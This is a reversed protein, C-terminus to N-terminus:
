PRGTGDLGGKYIFIVSSAASGSWATPHIHFQTGAAPAGYSVYNSATSAGTAGYAASMSAFSASSGFFFGLDTTGSINKVIVYNPTKALTNAGPTSSRDYYNDPQIGPVQKKSDNPDQIYDPM